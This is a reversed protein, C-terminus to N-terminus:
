IMRSVMEIVENVAIDKIASVPPHQRPHNPDISPGNYIYRLKNGYPRWKEPFSVLFIGLTPTDTMAALHMPGTDMSIVLNAEEFVKYLHELTTKGVLNTIPKGSNQQITQALLLDEKAGTLIIAGGYRDMLKDILESFKNASWQRTKLAPGTGLHIVITPRKTNENLISPTPPLTLPPLSHQYIPADILESVKGFVEAEHMPWVYPVTQSLLWERGQGPVGFGIRHPIGAWFTILSILRYRQALEVAIDFKERRLQKIIRLLGAIGKDKGTIDYSIINDIGPIYKLPMQARPTTFYVIKADPYRKRIALVTPLTLIVDGLGIWTVILIKKIQDPCISTKPNLLNVIGLLYCLPTGLLKDIQKFLGIM